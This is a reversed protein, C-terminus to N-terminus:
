KWGWFHPARRPSTGDQSSSWSLQRPPLVEQMSYTSHDPSGPPKPPTTETTIVATHRPSSVAPVSDKTPELMGLGSAFAPVAVPQKKMGIFVINRTEVGLCRLLIRNAYSGGWQFKLGIADHLDQHPLWVGRGIWQSRPCLAPKEEEEEEGEESEPLHQAQLLADLSLVQEESEVAPVEVEPFHAVLLQQVRCSLSAQCSNRRSGGCRGGREPEEDTDGDAQLSSVPEKFQTWTRGDEQARQDKFEAWSDEGDEQTPASCFDAFSDSPPLNGLSLGEEDDSQVHGQELTCERFDAFNEEAHTGTHSLESTASTEQTVSQDCFHFGKPRDNGLAEGEEDDDTPDWDTEDDQSVLSSVNPELDLSPCEISFDDCFSTLDESASEYVSFTQPVTSIGNGRGEGDSGGDETVGTTHLSNLCHGRERQIDGCGERSIPEESQFDLAAEQPEDHDQSTQVLAADRKECHKVKTCVNEKKTECACHSRPESDMVVDQGSGHRHEGLSNSSKRGEKGRADWQEKRDIPSFGCCWPHEAQETFLTFDAFGTEEKPGGVASAIPTRSHHNRVSFGNTLHVSSEATCEQGRGSGVHVTSTPQSQKVTSQLAAPKIATSSLQRFSSLSDPSEGVSFAGFDGFDDEESGVEGDGDLPPPSVSHLPIIDPEM